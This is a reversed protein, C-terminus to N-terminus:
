IIMIKKDIYRGRGTKYKNTFGKGCYYCNIEDYFEKREEDTLPIMPKNTELLQSFRGQLEEVKKTFMESSDESYYQYYESKFLEPYNSHIYM